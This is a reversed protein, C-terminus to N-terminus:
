RDKTRPQIVENPPEGDLIYSELKEYTAGAPGTRSEVLYLRRAVFGAAGVEAGAPLRVPRGRSRGLTIHPKYARKERAFGLPDITAEIDAALATLEAPGEEIGAWLVRAREVSPFAGFGSPRIHPPSHRRAVEGLAAGVKQLTEGSTDGLFKLTLHVNEQRVWRVSGDVPTNRAAQILPRQVEPPPFIAIFARM